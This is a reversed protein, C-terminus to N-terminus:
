PKKLGVTVTGNLEEKIWYLHDYGNYEYTGEITNSVIHSTNGPKNLAPFYDGLPAPALYLWLGIDSTLADGNFVTGDNLTLQKM